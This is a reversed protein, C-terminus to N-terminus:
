AALCLTDRRAVRLNTCQDAMRLRVRLLVFTPVSEVDFSDAIDAQEEAEVRLALLKPHKRALEVVLPDTQQCPAAWPAWFSILSVRELDASLLEQFETTSQVDIHNEPAPTTTAM